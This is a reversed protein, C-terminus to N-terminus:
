SWVQCITVCLGQFVESSPSQILVVGCGARHLVKRAAEAMEGRRSPMEQTQYGYGWLREQREEPPGLGELYTIEETRWTPGAPRQQAWTVASKYTGCSGPDLAVQLSGGKGVRGVQTNMEKGLWVRGPGLLLAQSSFSNASIHSAPVRQAGPIPPLSCSFRLEM